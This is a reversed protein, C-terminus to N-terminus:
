LKLTSKFNWLVDFAQKPSLQDYDLQELRALLEKKHSLEQQLSHVLIELHRITDSHVQAGSGVNGQKMADVLVTARIIVEDPLQALKAVEIGFSRDAVGQLMKYLFVIGSDSRKSAAYYSVIGPLEYQLSTLEHYHTAFLCRAKVRQVLYEVIAHALALGDFTSTGRGVEDLIVLSRETAQSCILATEEMEILFTSKGEALNDGAGIRTFIRDLLPLSAKRAPVFAGCQAMLCILAVQRLYTSKGGMNPGTIIWFSSTDTLQTDNTIFQHGLSSAIVPHKGHEIEIDNGDHMQPRTYGHEQAVRAFSLIADGHALAYAAQRLMTIHRSVEQKVTLFVEQEVSSLENNATVIEGQLVRLEPTMFREKGVLTQQRVYREPVLHLNPKTVEIYYGHVQNYRVKLSAIGTLAQERKELELIKTTSSQAIERLQDLRGNFGQKIVCDLSTDDNIAAHLLDYLTTSTDVQPMRIQSSLMQLLVSEMGSLSQQIEPFFELSQKLALYDHVTARNLAIRGIVRELDGVSRLAKTLQTSIGYNHILSSVADHRQELSQKHLLPRVLWKKIMRSGMATIARDLHACLTHARGGDQNNQLVELNRLTAPDLLLFDEPKYIHLAKLQELTQHHHKKLYAYLLSLSSRLAAHEYLTSVKERAFQRSIWGRVTEFPECEAAVVATVFYGSKQFWTRLERANTDESVIVEDPFFRAVESELTKSDGYSVTTAYVQATLIEVCILGWTGGEVTCVMLYSASKEDLMRTDTLTGPTLVRTVGRKVVKGPIAEELQDCVAVKYGGKILKVLYHDLAHVPVGCLPIPEGKHTGRKTLAIGLFSSAERADEFFLEYFDGVQFFLLCGQYQDRLSFYQQMLPTHNKM